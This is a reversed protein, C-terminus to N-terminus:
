KRLAFLVFFILAGLFATEAAPLFDFLRIGKGALLFAVAMSTVTLFGLILRNLNNDLRDALRRLDPNEQKFRLEGRAASDLLATIQAPLRSLLLLYNPFETLFFQKIAEPSLRATILKRGIPAAIEAISIEPDLRRLLGDTATLTKVILALEAPVRLRHRYAVQLMDDFAEALSIRSLPVDYYKQQLTEIDRRLAAPNTLETAVQMQLVIRAVTEANKQTLGVVLWGVQEKLTPGLHGVIGFDVLAIKEGPLVYLNGPHPDGHFFGDVLMQQLITEAFLRAIRRRNFGKRDLTALDSIKIGKIRELVLVGPKTYGWFVRPIVVMDNGTLNRRFTEAHQAELTFDCEEYLIRRFESVMETFPYVRGWTTHKEAFRAIDKLIEIDTEIVETVGPRRVKVVVEEGSLLRAPHVQAISASGLPEPAVFAFVDELPCGYEREITRVIEEKSAPPVTDQLKELERIYEVPLM